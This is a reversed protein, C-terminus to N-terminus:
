KLFQSTKVMNYATKIISEEENSIEKNYMKSFQKFLVDTDLKVKSKHITFKKLVKIHIFHMMFPMM